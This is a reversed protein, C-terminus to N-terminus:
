SRRHSRTYVHHIRPFVSIFFGPFYVAQKTTSIQPSLSSLLPLFPFCFMATSKDMSWVRFVAILASIYTQQYVVNESKNIAADHVTVGTCLFRFVGGSDSKIPCLDWRRYFHRPVSPLMAYGGASQGFAQHGPIILGNPGLTPRAM